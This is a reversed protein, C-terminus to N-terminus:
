LRNLLRRADQYELFMQFEDYLGQDQWYASNWVWSEKLTMTYTTGVYAM